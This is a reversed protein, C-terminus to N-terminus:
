SYTHIHSTFYKNLAKMQYEQRQLRATTTFPSLESEFVWMAHGIIKKEDTGTRPQLGM